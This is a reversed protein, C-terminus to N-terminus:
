VWWWLGGESPNKTQQCFRADDQKTWNGVRSPWFFRMQNVKKLLRLRSDSWRLLGHSGKWFFFRIAKRIFDADCSVHKMHCSRNSLWTIRKCKVQTNYKTANTYRTFLKMPLNVKSNQEHFRIPKWWMPLHEHPSKRSKRVAHRSMGRPHVTAPTRQTSDQLRKCTQTWLPSMWPSLSAM